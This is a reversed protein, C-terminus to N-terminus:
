PVSDLNPTTLGKFQLFQKKREIPANRQLRRQPVKFSEGDSFSQIRPPTVRSARITFLQRVTRLPVAAAMLTHCQVQRRESDSMTGHIADNTAYEYLESRESVLSYASTERFVSPKHWSM